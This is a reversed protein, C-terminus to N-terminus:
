LRTAIVRYDTKCSSEEGCPATSIDMLTSVSSKKGFPMDLGLEIWNSCANPPPNMTYVGFFDGSAIEEIEDIGRPAFGIVGNSDVVSGTMNICFEGEVEKEVNLELVTGIGLPSEAMCRTGRVIETIEIKVRDGVELEGCPGYGCGYTLGSCVGVILKTFLRAM